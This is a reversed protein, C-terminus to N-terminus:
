GGAVDDAEAIEVLRVAIGEEESVPEVGGLLVEGARLEFPEGVLHDLQIVEGPALEALKALRCRCGGVRVTVEVSVAEFGVFRGAPHASERKSVSEGELGPCLM